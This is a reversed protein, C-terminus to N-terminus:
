NNPKCSTGPTSNAPCNPLVTPCPLAPCELQLQLRDLFENCTLKKLEPDSIHALITDAVKPLTFNQPQEINQAILEAFGPTAASKDSYANLLSKAILQTGSPGAKKNGAQYLASAIVTGIRYELGQRQFDNIPLTTMATRLQANLCKDPRSIDRDDTLAENFSSILFRPNCGFETGCTVGYGHFDAFGEDMAKLLNVGPSSANVGLWRLLPEPLAKGGYVKRNFVRHSFEHGVVGVNISLPVQQLDQFPLIAFAQIPSFFLANDTQEKSGAEALVFAPFYYVSSGLLDSSDKGDYVGQWYEFSKEFNFYTSVMNWTHFDAPWLIGSKEIYSARPELGTGKVFVQKLQADSLNGGNTQLLPDNGDIVIRAGGTLTAVSGKVAVMDTITKLELQRTEYVGKGSLALGMVKVPAPPNPGCAAALLVSLALALKGRLRAM